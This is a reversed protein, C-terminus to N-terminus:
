KKIIIITLLYYVLDTFKNTVREGNRLSVGEHPQGHDGTCVQSTGPLPFFVCLDINAAFRQKLLSREVIIGLYGPPPAPCCGACLEWGLSLSFGGECAVPHQGRRQEKGSLKKDEWGKAFLSKCSAILSKDRIGSLGMVGTSVRKGFAVDRVSWGSFSERHSLAPRRGAAGPSQLAVSTRPLEPYPSWHM